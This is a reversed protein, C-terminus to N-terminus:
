SASRTRPRGNKAKSKPGDRLMEFVRTQTLPKGARGVYGLAALDAVIERVSKKEVAFMHRVVALVRQEEKDPVLSTRDESLRYGWPVAGLLVIRRDASVGWRMAQVLM